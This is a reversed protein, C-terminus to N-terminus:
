KRGLARLTREAENRLAMNPSRALEDLASSLSSLDREPQKRHLEAIAQLASVLTAHVTADDAVEQGDKRRLRFNQQQQNEDLMEELVGLRVKDSGRRALAVTANYRIKLGPSRTIAQDSKENDERFQALLDEGHGDDRALKALVEEIRKREAADGEWFNLAFAAVERLFPDHDEACQLLAKDVGLLNLRPGQPGRLYDVATRAWESRDRRGSDAEAELEALVTDQRSPSLKDFRKLHAGLNALVWVAQRRRQAIAKADGGEQNLAMESLLPAGVPITLNGLCASLYLIHDRGPELPKRDRNLDYKATQRLREALEKEDAANSQLAQRLRDALDLAFKPNSALHDDRLLVQALDQAGRWRVDPNPNDLKSLFDDPTRAGGVLWNVLLLFGVIVSVIIFPVLFLQAIFKGSPPVVPPLGKSSGPSIPVPIEPQM